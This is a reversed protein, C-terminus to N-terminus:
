VGSKGTGVDSMLNVRVSDTQNETKTFQLLFASDDPLVPLCGTVIPSFYRLQRLPGNGKYPMRQLCLTRQHLANPENGTPPLTRVGDANGNGSVGASGPMDLM